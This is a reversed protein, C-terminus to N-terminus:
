RLIRVRWYGEEISTSKLVFSCGVGELVGINGSPRTITWLCKLM